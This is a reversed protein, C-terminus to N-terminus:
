ASASRSSRSSWSCRCAICRSPPPSSGWCTWGLGLFYLPQRRLAVLDQPTGGYAGARRVAASELIPGSGSALAAVVALVYGLIM